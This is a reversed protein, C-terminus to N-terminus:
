YNNNMNNMNLASMVVNNLNSASGKFVNCEFVGEKINGNPFIM